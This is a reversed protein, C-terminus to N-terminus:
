KDQTQGAGLDSLQRPNRYVPIPGSADYPPNAIAFGGTPGAAQLGSPNRKARHACHALLAGKGV